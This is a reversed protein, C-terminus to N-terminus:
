IQLIAANSRRARLVSRQRRLIQHRIQLICICPLSRRAVSGFATGEEKTATCGHIRRPTLLLIRSAVHRAESRCQRHAPPRCHLRHQPAPARHTPPRCPLYHQPAPAPFSAAPVMRAASTGDRSLTPSTWCPASGSGAAPMLAQLPRRRRPAGRRQATPNSLVAHLLDHEM